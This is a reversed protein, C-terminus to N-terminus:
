ELLTRLSAEKSEFWNQGASWGDIFMLRKTRKEPPLHGEEGHKVKFSECFNVRVNRHSKFDLGPDVEALDTTRIVMKSM